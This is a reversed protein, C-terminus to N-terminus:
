FCNAAQMTAGLDEYVSPGSRLNYQRRQLPGDGRGRRFAGSPSLEKSLEEDLNLSRRLDRSKPAAKEPKHM